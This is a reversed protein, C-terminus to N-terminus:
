RDAKARHHEASRRVFSEGCADHRLRVFRTHVEDVRGVDVVFAPGFLDGSTRDARMAGMPHEGRLDGVRGSLTGVLATERAPADHLGRLRAQPAEARLPDVDVIEVLLIMPCRQRLRYVRHCIEYALALDPIEADRVMPGPAHSLYAAEAVIEADIARHHALGIVVGHVPHRLDLM